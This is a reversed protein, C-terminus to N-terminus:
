NIIAILTRERGFKHYDHKTLTLTYPIFHQDALNKDKQYITKFFKKHQVTDEFGDTYFIILDGKNLKIKGFNMFEEAEKEGTLAGYSSYMGNIIEAKKNRHESRIMIRYRPNFSNFNSKHLYKKEYKIFSNMLNPTQFKIKGSKDFVIIGCDCINGWYLKNRIIIGGSAVCAFLDNTLYDIKKVHKKNFKGVAKNGYIFADKINKVSPTKNDLYNIFSECFIDSVLRAGSPNPYKISSEKYNRIYTFNKPTIPERTVGDAVCFIRGEVLMSDEPPMLHGYLDNPLSIKYIM